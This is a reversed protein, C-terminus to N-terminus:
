KCKVRVNGYRASYTVRGDPQRRAESQSMRLRLFRAMCSGGVTRLDVTFPKTGRYEQAFLERHTVYTRGDESLDVKLVRPFVEKTHATLELELVDRVEGLDITHQFEHEPSSDSTWSPPKATIWCAGGASKEANVLTPDAFDVKPDLVLEFAHEGPGFAQGLRPVEATADPPVELTCAVRAGDRTWKAVINGRPTPVTGEAFALRSVFHPDFRFRAYGPTIPVVGLLYETIPGAVATDPHSEDWWGKRTLFGCETCCQAGEWAPDSLAFWTGGEIMGFASENYGCAFKGRLASLHLKSAGNLPLAKAISLSEEKTAFDLALAMGNTAEWHTTADLNTRFLGVAPNWLKRRIAAALADAAKRWRAADERHGLFDALRAGDTYSKWFVLQTFTRVRADKPRMSVINSSTALPQDVLGDTRPLTDLYGLEARATGYLENATKEDGTYLYYDLLIPPFWASFEDSPFHGFEGKKPRAGRIAFPAAWVYGEPTQYHALLRLSERFYPWDPRFAYFCTRAAWWLDGIWVLRDRKAGDALFAFSRDYDWGALRGLADAGAFDENLVTKGAGDKVTLSSVVPWWEKEVYFGFKGAAPLDPVTVTVLKVGNFLATVENGVVQATLECVVGDVIREDLVMRDIEELVGNRRRCIRVWGPQSAIVVLGNDKDTARLMLGLASPYHPNERLEFKVTWTGDGACTAKECLGAANGREVWRPLLKGDVVRWGDSNPISALACTWASMDWARNVRADSCRFSGVAPETSHSGVNRIELPELEVFTGPTDLQVRVYREQGQILPAVYAGTRTITYTEYRNVNAPLVPNDFTDGLYRACTRREFCGKEGLGDPHTAYSLRVVPPVLGGFAKVKLIAHGGVTKGGYDLAVVPREGGAKWELRAPTAGGKAYLVGKPWAAFSEAAAQAAGASVLTLGIGTLVLLSSPKRM